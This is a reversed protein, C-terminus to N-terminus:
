KELEDKLWENRRELLRQMYRRLFLRDVASGIVGLPSAFEVTDIMRTSGGLSEFRHEHRWRAFPGRIQEDVFCHPADHETIKATLKWPIGFHIARWTVVDGLGLQGEVVGGVARENSGSMSATHAGVALSLAFCAEPSADILTELHIM